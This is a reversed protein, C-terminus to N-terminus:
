SEVNSINIDLSYFSTAGDVEKFRYDFSESKRAISILGLGAGSKDSLQTESLVSKHLAKLEDKNLAKIKDLRSKLPAVEATTIFNGTKLSYNGNEVCVIVIGPKLESQDAPAGYKRINQMCEVMVSFVRARIQTSTSQMDPRREALLLIANVLDQNFDGQFCLIINEKECEKLWGYLFTSKDATEVMSM